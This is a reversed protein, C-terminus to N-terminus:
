RRRCRRSGRLREPYGVVITRQDHGLIFDALAVAMVRLSTNGADEVRLVPEVVVDGVRQGRALPQALGLDHLHHYPFCGIPDILQDAPSGMEVLDVALDRQPQFPSMRVGPDCVGQSVLGPALDHSRYDKLSSRPPRDPDPLVARRDIQEGM